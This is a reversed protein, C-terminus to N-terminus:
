PNEKHQQQLAQALHDLFITIIGDNFGLPDSCTCSTAGLQNKWSDPEDGLVDNLIHDGAVMMLPIFHVHKSTMKVNSLATEPVDGEVNVVFVNNYKEKLKLALKTNQDNFHYHRKNGHCVIVNSVHPLFERELESIVGDIDEDNSLLPQGFAVKMNPFNTQQLKTFEQGPVVHLSQIVAHQWGQNKLSEIAMEPTATEIGKKQLRERVIRSTFGWSILHHPYDIRIRQEIYTYVERAKTVTTGFTVLVIPTLQHTM